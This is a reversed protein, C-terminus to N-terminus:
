GRADCIVHDRLEYRGVPTLGLLVMGNRLVQRAAQYMAARAVSVSRGEVPNVVRLHGYSSNLEHALKFLYKLITTPELTKLAQAVIDPFRIMTRLLHIAYPSDTLCSFNANLMEDPTFNAKRSISSLRAHTYQLYPGTDGKSFMMRHLSYEYNHTRKGSMDQVMIASIGLLEATKETNEVQKYKDENRRMIEHM